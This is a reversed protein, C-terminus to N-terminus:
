GFCSRTLGFCLHIQDLCITRSYAMHIFSYQAAQHVLSFIAWSHYLRVQTHGSRLRKRKNEFYQYYLQCILNFLPDFGPGHFQHILHAIPRPHERGLVDAAGAELLFFFVPQHQSLSCLAAPDFLCRSSCAVPYHLQLLLHHPLVKTETVKNNKQITRGCLTSFYTPNISITYLPTQKQTLNSKM